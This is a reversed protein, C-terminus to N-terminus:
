VTNPIHRVAFHSIVWCGALDRSTGHAHGDYDDADDDGDADDNDDDDGDAVQWIELPETHVAM